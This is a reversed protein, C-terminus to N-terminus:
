LAETIKAAIEFLRTREHPKAYLYKKWCAVVERYRDREQCIKLCRDRLGVQRQINAAVQARAEELSFIVPGPEPQALKKVKEEADQWRRRMREAVALHNNSERRLDAIQEKLRRNEELADKIYTTLM